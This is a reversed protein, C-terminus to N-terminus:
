KKLGWDGTNYAPGVNTANDRMNVFRNQVALFTPKQYLPLVYAAKTMISDAQNLLTAAKSIIEEM